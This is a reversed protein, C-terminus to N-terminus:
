SRVLLWLDGANGTRTVHIQWCGPQSFEFTSGWEDGPRGWNSAAHPEIVVPAVTSGDPARTTFTAEGTGMFRWIIKTQKGVANTLVATRADALGGFLAWLDGVVAEGRAERTAANAPSPPVCDPAGAPAFSSAPPISVPRPRVIVQGRIDDSGVRVRLTWNGSAAFTFVTRWVGPRVRRLSRAYSAGAPSLLEIRLSRVTKSTHVVIHASTGEVPLIPTVVIRAATSEVAAVCLLAAGITIAAGSRLRM